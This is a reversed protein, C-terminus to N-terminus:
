PDIHVVTRALETGEGNTMVITHDGETNAFSVGVRDDHVSEGPPLATWVSSKGGNGFALSLSTSSKGDVTYGRVERIPAAPVSGRNTVTVRVRLKGLDAKKVSKPETEITWELGPSAVPEPAKAEPKTEAKIEAKTPVPDAKAAKAPPKEDKAPAPTPAADCGCLLAIALIM